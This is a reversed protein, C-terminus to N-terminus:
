RRRNQQSRLAEKELLHDVAAAALRSSPGGGVRGTTIGQKSLTAVFNGGPLGDDNGDLARGLSDLLGSSIITLQEAPNLVLAKKPTLTVTNTRANYIATAPAVPKGLKIVHKKTTEPALSYLLRNQADSADLAGSFQLVIVTVKKHKKLTEKQLSVNLVTVLAPDNQHIDLVASSVPGLTGLASPESLAMDVFLDGGHVLNDRIPIEVVQSMVGPAFSLSMSVPTYQVGAVATGGGTAFEVTAATSTNGSRTVAVSAFGANENVQYLSTSFALTAPAVATTTAQAAAPLAQINGANDTAVSYFAYTHGAEGNYTDSTDTTGAEWLVFPGGDESAFVNYSAIGSGHADDTGSWSVPFNALM